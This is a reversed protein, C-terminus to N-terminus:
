SQCLAGNTTPMQQMDQNATTAVTWCASCLAQYVNVGGVLVQTEKHNLCFSRTAVGFTLCKDCDARLMIIRDAVALLRPMSVGFPELESTASLGSVLLATEHRLEVVVDYLNEEDPFLAPEDIWVLRAKQGRLVPIIGATTEVETSPFERGNKTVLVGPREHARVSRTPRLLVVTHHLRQHRSAIGHAKTSKDAHMPGVVCTLKKM